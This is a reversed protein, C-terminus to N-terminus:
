DLHANHSLIQAAVAVGAFVLTMLVTVGIMAAIM